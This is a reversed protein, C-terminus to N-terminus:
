VFGSGREEIPISLRFLSWEADSRVLQLDGQHARLLTRAINLGLGHGQVEEGVDAGRYFREFIRDRDRESIPTGTNALDLYFMGKQISADLRIRGGDPTNPRM